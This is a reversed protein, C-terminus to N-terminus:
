GGDSLGDDFLGVLLPKIDRGERRHALAQDDSISAEGSRDFDHILREVSFKSRALSTPLLEM